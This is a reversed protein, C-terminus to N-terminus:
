QIGIKIGSRNDEGKEFCKGNNDLEKYFDLFLNNREEIMKKLEKDELNLSLAIKLKSDTDIMLKNCKVYRQGIDDVDNNLNDIIDIEATFDVNHFTKYPSQALVATINSEFVRRSILDAGSEILYETNGSNGRTDNDKWALAQLKLVRCKMFDIFIWRTSLSTGREMFFECRFTNQRLKSCPCAYYLKRRTKPKYSERLVVDGAGYPCAFAEYPVMLVM